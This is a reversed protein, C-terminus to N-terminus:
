LKTRLLHLIEKLFFLSSIVTKVQEKPFICPTAGSVMALKGTPWNSVCMWATKANKQNRM